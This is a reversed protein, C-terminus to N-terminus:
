YQILEVPAGCGCGLAKAASSRRRVIEIYGSSGVIAATEGSEVEEFTRALKEIRHPGVVLEFPREQIGGFESVHFNTILNGFHDIKLIAGNWFRKGTRVPHEFDTQAYDNILKGFQAPRVGKALQAACPAFIDRGHFTPSVPKRFYRESTIERVRHTERNYIMSFVGNDPGIFYQGGAQALIPRRATGVGPDVVVVHVTKPPFDRYLQALTFGAEPIEYPTIQHTIDVVTADPAIGLIVGKMAGVFHDSQGFDTTLTIPIRPM